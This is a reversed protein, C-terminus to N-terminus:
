APPEQASWDGTANNYVAIMKDANSDDQNRYEQAVHVMVDGTEGLREKIAAVLSADVLDYSISAAESVSSMIGGPPSAFPGAAPGTRLAGAETALGHLKTGLGELVDLDVKLTGM